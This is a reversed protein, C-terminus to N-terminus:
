YLIEGYIPLHDSVGQGKIFDYRHPTGDENLQDKGATSIRISDKDLMMGGPAKGNEDLNKSFMLVKLFSWEGKHYETGKCQKCGVLHSIMMNKSMYKDGAMLDAKKLDSAIINSDGGALIIANPGKSEILKNLTSIADVRQWTPNAGSPFHFGFVYGTQGNPLKLAVELIGRTSPTVFPKNPDQPGPPPTFQIRHLIPEAALEFKSLLANDIGRRDDGELLVATKYNASKLHNNNLQKLVSLNEIEQLLVIDPGENNSKLIADAIRDLKIALNAESWDINLCDNKYTPNKMANCFADFGAIQKKTELPLYTTDEKGENVCPVIDHQTDFLNEVNFSLFSIKGSPKAHSNEAPSKQLDPLFVPKPAICIEEPARPGEQTNAAPALGDKAGFNRECAILSFGLSLM